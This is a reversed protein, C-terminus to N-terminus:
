PGLLELIYVLDGFHNLALTYGHGDANKNHNEVFERNGLWVRHRALEERWSSYVRGHQTKWSHWESTFDLLSSSVLGLLVFLLLCPIEIKM